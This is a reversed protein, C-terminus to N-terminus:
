STDDTFILRGHGVNLRCCTLFPLSNGQKQNKLSLQLCKNLKPAPPLGDIISGGIVPPKGWLPGTICLKSAKIKMHSFLAITCDTSITFFQSAMISMHCLRLVPAKNWRTICWLSVDYPGICVVGWPCLYSGAKIDPMNGSIGNGQLSLRGPGKYRMEHAFKAQQSWHNRHPEGWQSYIMLAVKSGPAGKILM